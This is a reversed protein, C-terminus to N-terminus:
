PQQELLKLFPEVLDPDFHKGAQERIYARARDRSWAARYPRDATLADWVDVMAFIRAALPIESGRLGRPYGSGDWKEHHCYPIDLAPHLYTIPQLMEYAYVPHMRMLAWEQDDLPGEKLLIRDPVGMKGIDHLLAGRRIHVLDVNDGMYARAMRLTLEAVRRSHGETEKDRLDLIRSWAAITEDYAHFLDHNTRQVQVVLSDLEARRDQELRNRYHTILLLLISTILLFCFPGVIITNFAVSPNLLPVLLLGFLTVVILQVLRKLSIYLSGVWLPVILYDLMGSIVERPDMLGNILGAMVSVVITLTVALQLRHTRSIIYVIILSIIAIITERYGTYNQWDILAVTVAEAVIALAIMGLILGSLLM